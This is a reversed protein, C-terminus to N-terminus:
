HTQQYIGVVCLAAQTVLLLGAMSLFMKRQRTEFIDAFVGGTFVLLFPIAWLWPSTHVSTATLPLLLFGILLPVTPASEGTASTAAKAPASAGSASASM